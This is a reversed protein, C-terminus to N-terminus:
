IARSTLFPTSLHKLTILEPEPYLNISHIRKRERDIRRRCPKCKSDLVGTKKKIVNFNSFPQRQGKKDCEKSQCQKM